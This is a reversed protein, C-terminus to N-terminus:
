PSARLGPEGAPSSSRSPTARWCVVGAWLMWIWFLLPAFLLAAAVDEFKPAAFALGLLTALLGPVLAVGALVKGFLGSLWMAAGACLLSVGLPGYIMYNLMYAASDLTRVSAAPLVTALPGRLGLLSGM